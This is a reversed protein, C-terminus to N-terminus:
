LSFLRLSNTLQTRRSVSQNNPPTRPLDRSTIFPNASIDFTNSSIITNVLPPEIPPPLPPPVPPPLPPPVPPPPLQFRNIERMRNINEIVLPPPPPPTARVQRESVPIYVMIEVGRKFGFNSKERLLKRLIKKASINANKKINPNCSFKFLLYNNLAKKFISCAKIKVGYQVNDMFTLYKIIKRYEYLMNLIQEWKEYILGKKRIFNEIAKEKLMPYYKFSFDDINMNSTFFAKISLPLDFGTNLLKFYINYLNHTSIKLNTYPNTLHVPKTFLGSSNTLSEEWYNIINSLRFRYRTNNELITIKYKDKFGDLDNLYLDSNCSYLVSKKWKYRRVFSSLKNKIKKFKVFLRGIVIIDDSDLFENEFLLHYYIKPDSKINKTQFIFIDIFNCSIDNKKMIKTMIDYTMKM